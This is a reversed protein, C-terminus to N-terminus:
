NQFVMLDQANSDIMGRWRQEIYISLATLLLHLLTVAM